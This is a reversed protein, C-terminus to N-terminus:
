ATGERVDPRCVVRVPEGTPPAPTVAAKSEAFLGCGSDYSLTAQRLPCYGRKAHDVAAGIPQWHACNMCHRSQSM